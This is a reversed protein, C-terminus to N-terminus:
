DSGFCELEQCVEKPPLCFAPSSDVDGRRNELSFNRSRVMSASSVSGGSVSLLWPTCLLYLVSHSNELHSGSISKIM